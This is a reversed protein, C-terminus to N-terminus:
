QDAKETHEEPSPLSALFSEYDELFFSCMQARQSLYFSTISLLGKNGSKTDWSMAPIKVVFNFDAVLKNPHKVKQMNKRVRELKSYIPNLFTKQEVVFSTPLLRKEQKIVFEHINVTRAESVRDELKKYCDSLFDRATITVIERHKITKWDIENSVIKEYVTKCQIPSKVVFDDDYAFITSDYVFRQIEWRNEMENFHFFGADKNIVRGLSVKYRVTSSYIHFQETKRASETRGPLFFVLDGEKPLINM